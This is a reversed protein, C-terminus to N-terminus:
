VKPLSPTIKLQANPLIWFQYNYTNDKAPATSLTEIVKDQQKDYVIVQIPINEPSLITGSILM